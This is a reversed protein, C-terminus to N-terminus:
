IQVDTLCGIRRTMTASAFVSDLVATIRVVHQLMTNFLRPQYCLRILLFAVFCFFIALKSEVVQPEYLRAYLKGLAFYAPRSIGVTSAAVADSSIEAWGKCGRAHVTVQSHVSM